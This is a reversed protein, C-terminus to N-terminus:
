PLPEPDHAQSVLDAAGLLVLGDSLEPSPDAIQLSAGDAAWTARASLLVQLCQGGIRQVDGAMRTVDRGRLAQLEGALPAAAKLDLVGPLHVVASAAEFPADMSLVGAM